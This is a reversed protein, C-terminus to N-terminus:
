SCYKGACDFPSCDSHKGSNLERSFDFIERLKNETEDKKRLAGVRACEQQALDVDVGDGLGLVKDEGADVDGRGGELVGGVDGETRWNAEM